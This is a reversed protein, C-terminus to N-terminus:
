PRDYTRVQLRQDVETEAQTLTSMYQSIDCGSQILQSAHVEVDFDAVLLGKKLDSLDM